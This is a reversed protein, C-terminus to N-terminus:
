HSFLALLLLMAIASTTLKKRLDRSVDYNATAETSPDTNKLITAFAEAVADGTMAQKATITVGRLTFSDGVALGHDTFDVTVKAPNSEDGAQFQGSIAGGVAEITSATNATVTMSTTQNTSGGTDTITLTAGDSSADKNTWGQLFSEDLTGSIVYEASNTEAEDLATGNIKKAFLSAITAAALGDKLSTITIGGIEYSQGYNLDQLTFANSEAVADKAAVAAVM